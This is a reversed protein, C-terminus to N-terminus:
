GVPTRPLPTLPSAPLMYPANPPCGPRCQFAAEVARSGGTSYQAPRGASDPRVVLTQAGTCLAAIPPSVMRLHDSRSLSAAQRHTSVFTARAPRGSEAVTKTSVLSQCPRPSQRVGM